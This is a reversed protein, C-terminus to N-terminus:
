KPSNVPKSNSLVPTFFYDHESLQEQLRYGNQQMFDILRGPKRNEVLIARFRWYGFDIGHLVEYEGGEVDLSLLDIERPAETLHLVSDLSIARASVLEPKLNGSYSKQVKRGLEAHSFPAEIDNRAVLPVTMQDAEWLDVRPRQYDFAVCAAMVLRNRRANRNHKLESFVSPVPEILIGTWGRLTELLLTNSQTAGDNAGLEVYFGGRSGLLAFLKRDLSGAGFNRNRLLLRDLFRIRYGFVARYNKELNRIRAYLHM